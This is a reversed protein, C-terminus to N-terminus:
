QIMKPQKCIFIYEVDIDWYSCWKAQIGAQRQIAGPRTMAGGAALPKARIGSLTCGNKAELNAEFYGLAEQSVAIDNPKGCADSEIKIKVSYSSFRDSCASTLYSSIKSYDTPLGAVFQMGSLYDFNEDCSKDIAARMPTMAVATQAQATSNLFAISLLFIVYQLTSKKM